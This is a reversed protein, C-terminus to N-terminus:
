QVLDLLSVALLATAQEAAWSVLRVDIKVANMEHWGVVHWRKSDVFIGSSACSPPTEKVCPVLTLLGDSFAEM